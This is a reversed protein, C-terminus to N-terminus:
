SWEKEAVKGPEEDEMRRDKSRKTRVTTCVNEWKPRM